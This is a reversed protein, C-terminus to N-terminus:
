TLSEHPQAPTPASPEKLFKLKIEAAKVKESAQQLREEAQKIAEPTRGLKALDLKAQAIKLAADAEAIRVDLEAPNMRALVDGMDVENGEIVKKEDIWEVQGPRGFSMPTPESIGEIRGNGRAVREITDRTVTETREDDVQKRSGAYIIGGAVLILLAIFSWVLRKVMVM